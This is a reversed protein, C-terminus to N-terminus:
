FHFLNIKEIRETFDTIHYPNEFDLNNWEIGEDSVGEPMDREEIQHDTDIYDSIGSHDDIWIAGQNESLWYISKSDVWIKVDPNVQDNLEAILLNQKETITSM